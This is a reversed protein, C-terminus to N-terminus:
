HRKNRLRRIPQRRGPPLFGIVVSVIVVIGFHTPDVGVQKVIPLFLPKFILINALAVMFTGFVLFILVIVLLVLFKSDPIHSFLEMVTGPVNNYLLM